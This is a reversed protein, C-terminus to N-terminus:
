VLSRTFSEQYDDHPRNKQTVRSVVTLGSIMTSFEHMRYFKWIRATCVYMTLLRGHYVSLINYDHNTFNFNCLFYWRYVIALHKSYRSDQKPKKM